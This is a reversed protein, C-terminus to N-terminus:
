QAGGFYSKFIQEYMACRQDFHEAMEPMASESQKRRAEAVIACAFYDAVPTAVALASSGSAITPPFQHFIVALTGPAEPIRYLTITGPGGADMSYRQVIGTTLPWTTDLSALDGVSAPRLRQGGLSVHITDIHRAPTPYAPTAALVATSTDREVFVGARHGLRKAAEDAFQYLEDPLCWTLDALSGAGLTPLLELIVAAIDVGAIAPGQPILLLLM